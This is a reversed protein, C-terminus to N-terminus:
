LSSLSQSDEFTEGAEDWRMQVRWQAASAISVAVLFPYRTAPLLREIPSYGILEPAEGDRV